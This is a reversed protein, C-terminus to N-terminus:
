DSFEAIRIYGINDHLVRSDTISDTKIIERVVSVDVSKQASPRFLTLAVTTKPRGRLRKLVDDMPSAGDVAHGDIATIQDGRQIGAREGPTNPMPAIVTVRKDRVEVQVGIGGFEGSLEEQFEENDQAELYESHPDLNEVMGHIASRTLNDYSAGKAD